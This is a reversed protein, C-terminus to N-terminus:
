TAFHHNEQSNWQVVARNKFFFDKLSGVLQRSPNMLRARCFKASPSIKDDVPHLKDCSATEEM